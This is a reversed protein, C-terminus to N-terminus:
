GRLFIKTNKQKKTQIYLAHLVYNLLPTFTINSSNQALPSLSTAQVKQPQQSFTLGFNEFFPGCPSLNTIYIDIM